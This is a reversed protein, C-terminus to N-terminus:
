KSPFNVNLTDNEIVKMRVKLEEFINNLFRHINTAFLLLFSFTYLSNNM